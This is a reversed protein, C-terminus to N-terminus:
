LYNPKTQYDKTPFKLGFKTPTTNLILNYGEYWGNTSILPFIKLDIKKNLSKYNFSHTCITKFLNYILM